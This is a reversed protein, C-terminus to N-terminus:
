RWLEETGLAGLQKWLTRCNHIATHAQPNLNSNRSICSVIEPSLVEVPLRKWAKCDRVDSPFVVSNGQRAPTLSFNGWFHQRNKYLMQLWNGLGWPANAWFIVAECLMLRHVELKLDLREKRTRKDHRNTESPRFTFTVRSPDHGQPRFILVLDSVLWFELILSLLRKREREKYTHTQLHTHKAPLTTMIDQWFLATKSTWLGESVILKLTERRRVTTFRHRTQGKNRVETHM